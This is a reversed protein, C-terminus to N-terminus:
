GEKLLEECLGRGFLENTEVDEPDQDLVTTSGQASTRPRVKFARVAQGQNSVKPSRRGKMTFLEQLVLDVVKRLITGNPRDSDWENTADDGELIGLNDVM